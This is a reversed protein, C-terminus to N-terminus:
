EKTICGLFFVTRFTVSIIRNGFTPGRRCDSQYVSWLSCLTIQNYSDWHDSSSSVVGFIRCFGFGVNRIVPLVNCTWNRCRVSCRHKLQFHSLLPRNGAAPLIRLAAASPDFVTPDDVGDRWCLGACCVCVCVCVSITPWVHFCVYAFSCMWVSGSKLYLM